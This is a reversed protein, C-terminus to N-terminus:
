RALNGFWEEYTMSDILGGASQRQEGDRYEDEDFWPITTTRCRPHFPNATIGPVYDKVKYIEGDQSRCIDSTKGDLTALIEYKELGADNYSKQAGLGHFFNAETRVLTDVKSRAVNTREVLARSTDQLSRGSSFSRNLEKRIATMTEKQHGWIRKSFEKGSWNYTMAQKLADGSLATVVTGAVAGAAAGSKVMDFMTQYYASEYVTTLGTYVYSQVGQGSGGGYLQLIQIELQMHLVEIRSIRARSGAAWLLPEYEPNGSLAMARFKELDIDRFAKADKASLLQRAEAMSINNGDAYRAYFAEVQRVLEQQTERIQVDIQALTQGAILQSQLERQLAREKWYNSMQM